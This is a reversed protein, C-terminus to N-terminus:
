RQRHTSTAFKVTPLFKESPTEVEFSRRRHLLREGLRIESRMSANRLPLSNVPAGGGDGTMVADPRIQGAILCKDDLCSASAPFPLCAPPKPEMWLQLDTPIALISSLPHFPSHPINLPFYLFSSLLLAGYCSHPNILSAAVSEMTCINYLSLLSNM